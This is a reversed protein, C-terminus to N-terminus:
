RPCDDSPRASRIGIAGGAPVVISFSSGRGLTSEVEIQSGLLSASREVISLGLGLCGNRGAPDKDVRYFEDFIGALQDSAIGIGSDQVTIRLAGAERRCYVNVSGKNTYRIANSVLIRLIRTLLKRDSYAVECQSGFQLQLGKAHAQSEFEDRVRRFIDQMPTETIRLEVEGSELKSIELLSNLLDSLHAIADGQMAFMDQAKPDKIVKRLTGNLLSLTQLHHRLDNSTTDLFRAKANRARDAEQRAKQLAKEQKIRETVDHGVNLYGVVRGTADSLTTARWEIQRQEGHKTIIAKTPHTEVAKGPIRQLSELDAPQEDNPTFAESWYKGLVEKGSYGSVQELYPNIATIKGNTDLLLVVGPATEFLTDSFRRQMRLADESKNRKTHVLWGVVIATFWIASLALMRNAAVMWPIGAPESWLLGLITLVSVVGAFIFSYQWRPLWLSMLVVVIYAMGAAIGLPLSALDIVFIGIALATCILVIPVNSHKAFDQSRGVLEEMM